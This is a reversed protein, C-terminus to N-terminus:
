ITAGAPPVGVGAVYLVSESIGDLGLDKEVLSDKLAATCFPALGLWTATLCFTQCLHGADLLVVRYARPMRYKWMSRPFAATMLFVAAAKKVHRQGACYQVAKRKMSGRRLLELRHHQADYHYLGPALGKVNLAALYVETPHRAGGSPSTKLPLRGLVPSHLFGTVGWTYFLLKSICDLPLGDGSFERRTRRAMLVRLFEDAPPNERSLEVQAAKPYNKFFAPQPSEELYKKLRRPTHSTDLFPTDKTAFHFAGHPLWRSWIKELRADRLAVPTGEQVLLTDQTLQRLARRVSGQSYERMHSLLEDPRRWRDFFDLIRITLPDATVSALTLYNEFVLRGESWYILIARARKLRLHIKRRPDPWRFFTM